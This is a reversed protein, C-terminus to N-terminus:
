EPIVLEMGIYIKDPDRIQARNAEYIKKWQSVDNYYERALSCLTDKSKVVHIRVQSSPQTQASSYTASDWTQTEEASVDAVDPDYADSGSAYSDYLALDSQGTEYTSNKSSCGITFIALIIAIQPLQRM